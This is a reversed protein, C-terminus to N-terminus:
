RKEVKNRRKGEGRSGGDNDGDEEEVRSGEVKKEGESSLNM